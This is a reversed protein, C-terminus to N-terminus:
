RLCQEIKRGNTVVDGLLTGSTGSRDAPTDLRGYCGDIDVWLNPPAKAVPGGDPYQRNTLIRVPNVIQNCSVMDSYQM